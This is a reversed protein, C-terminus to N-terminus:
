ETNLKLATNIQPELTVSFVRGFCNKYVSSVDSMTLNSEPLEDRLNTIQLGVHGCPVIEKFWKLDVNVNLSAGHMVKGQAHSVGIFGLKRQGDVAVGAEGFRSTGKLGLSTCTDILVQEMDHIYRKLGYNTVDVVPYAVLQGPGHFTILGGRDTDVTDAGLARLRAAEESSSWGAIRKGCTYVPAHEVLILYGDKINQGVSASLQKQLQWIRRFDHLTGRKVFDYLKM